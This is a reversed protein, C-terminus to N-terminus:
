ELQDSEIGGVPHFIRVFEGASLALADRDRARKGAIGFEDDAVLRGGREVHRHLRLDEVQHAVQLVAEPEGVQEDAVVERDHAVHRVADAHHVEATEDLDRRRALHERM